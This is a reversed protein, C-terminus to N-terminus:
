RNIRICFELVRLFVAYHFGPGERGTVEGASEETGVRRGGASSSSGHIVRGALGAPSPLDVAAVLLVACM